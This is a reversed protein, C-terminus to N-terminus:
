VPIEDVPEPRLSHREWDLPLEMLPLAFALESFGAGGGNVVTVGDAAVALWGVQDSGELITWRQARCSPLDLSRANIHVIDDHGAAAEHFEPSTGDTLVVGTVSEGAGALENRAACLYADIQAVVLGDAGQRKLEAIVWNGDPDKFILDARRRDAFVHQRSHLTLAPLYRGLVEPAAALEAELASELGLWSTPTAVDLGDAVMQVLQDFFEGVIPEVVVAPLMLRSAVTGIFHDSDLYDANDPGLGLIEDDDLMLEEVFETMAQYAPLHPHGWWALDEPASGAVILRGLRTASKMCFALENLVRQALALSLDVENMVSGISPRDVFMEVADTM